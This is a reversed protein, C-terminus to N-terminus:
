VPLSPSKFMVEGLLEELTAVNGEFKSQNVSEKILTPITNGIACDQWTALRGSCIDGVYADSSCPYSTNGPSLKLWPQEFSCEMELTQHSIRAYQACPALMGDGSGSAAVM